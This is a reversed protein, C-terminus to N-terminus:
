PATELVKDGERLTQQLPDTKPRLALEAGGEQQYERLLEMIQLVQQPALGGQATLQERTRDLWEANRQPDASGSRLGALQEQREPEAILNRLHHRMEETVATREAAAKRNIANVEEATRRDIARQREQYPGLDVLLQRGWAALAEVQQQTLPREAEIARQQAEPDLRTVWYGDVREPAPKQGVLALPPSIVTNWAYGATPVLVVGTGFHWVGKITSDTLHYAPIGVAGAANGLVSGTLGVPIRFANDAISCFTAWPYSFWWGFVRRETRARAQAFNERWAKPTGQLTFEVLSDEYAWEFADHSQRRLTLYKEPSGYEALDEGTKVLYRRGFRTPPAYGPAIWVDYWAGEADQISGEMLLQGKQRLSLFYGEDQEARAGDPSMALLAALLLGALGLTRRM